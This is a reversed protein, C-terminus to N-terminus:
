SSSNSFKEKEVSRRALAEVLERRSYDPGLEGDDILRLWFSSQYADSRIRRAIEARIAGINIRPTDVTINPSTIILQNFVVDPKWAEVTGRIPTLDDSAGVIQVEHGLAELGKVVDYETQWPQMEKDSLGESSQPPILDSHTLVLVRHRTM